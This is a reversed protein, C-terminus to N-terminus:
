AVRGSQVAREWLRGTFTGTGKGLGSVLAYSLRQEADLPNGQGQTLGRGRM